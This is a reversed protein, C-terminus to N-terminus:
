EGVFYAACNEDKGFQIIYETLDEPIEYLLYCIRTNNDIRKDLMNYSKLNHLSDSYATQGVAIMRTDINFIMDREPNDYKDENYVSDTDYEQEEHGSDNFNIRYKIVAYECGNSVPKMTDFYYPAFHEIFYIAQEGRVTQLLSINLNIKTNDSPHNKSAIGIDGVLLPADITSNIGNENSYKIHNVFYPDMLLVCSEDLHNATDQKSSSSSHKSTDTSTGMLGITLFIAFCICAGVIAYKIVAKAQKPRKKHNKFFTILGLIPVFFSGINLLKNPKDDETALQIESIEVSPKYEENNQEYKVDPSISVGCNPCFEVNDDYEYGCIICKM